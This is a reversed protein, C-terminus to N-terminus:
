LNMQKRAFGAVKKCIRAFTSCHAFCGQIETYEEMLVRGVAIWVSMGLWMWMHKKYFCGGDVFSAMRQKVCGFCKWIKPGNAQLDASLVKSPSPRQQAAALKALCNAPNFSSGLLASRFVFLSHSGCHGLSVVHGKTITPWKNPLSNWVFSLPRQFYFTTTLQEALKYPYIACTKRFSTVLCTVLTGAAFAYGLLCSPLFQIMTSYIPVVYLLAASWSSTKLTNGQFEIMESSKELVLFWSRAPCHLGGTGSVGTGSEFIHWLTDQVPVTSPANGEWRLPAWGPFRTPCNWCFTENTLNNVRLPVPHSLKDASETM